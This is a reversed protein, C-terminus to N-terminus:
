LGPDHLCAGTQATGKESAAVQPINHCVDCQKRKRETSLHKVERPICVCFVRRAIRDGAYPKGM